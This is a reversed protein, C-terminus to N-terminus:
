LLKSRFQRARSNEKEERMNQDLIALRSLNQKETM